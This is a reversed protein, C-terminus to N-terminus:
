ITRWADISNGRDDGLAALLLHIAARSLVLEMRLQQDPSLLASMQANLRVCCRLFWNTWVAESIVHAHRDHTDQHYDLLRQIAGHAAGGCRDRIAGVANFKSPPKRM